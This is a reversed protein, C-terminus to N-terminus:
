ASWLILTAEIVMLIVKAEADAKCEKPVLAAM